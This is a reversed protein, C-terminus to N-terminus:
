SWVRPHRAASPLAPCPLALFAFGDVRKKTVEEGLVGDCSLDFVGEDGMGGARRWRLVWAVSVRSGLQPRRGVMGVVKYQRTEGEVLICTSVRSLFTLM